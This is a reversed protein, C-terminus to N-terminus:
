GTRLYLNAWDSPGLLIPKSSKYLPALVPVNWFTNQLWFHSLMFHGAYTDTIVIYPTWQYNNFLTATLWIGQWEYRSEVKNYTSIRLKNLHFWSPITRPLQWALQHIRQVLVRVTAGSYGQCKWKLRLQLGSISSMVTLACLYQLVRWSMWVAMLLLCELMDTLPTMTDCSLEQGPLHHVEGMCSARDGQSKHTNPRRLFVTSPQLNLSFVDLSHCHLPQLLLGPHGSVLLDMHKRGWHGHLGNKNPDTGKGLVIRGRM